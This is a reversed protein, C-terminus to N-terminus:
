GPRKLMLHVLPRGHYTSDWEICFFDLAFYRTFLERLRFPDPIVEKGLFDQTEPFSQSLYLWGDKKVMTNLNHIVEELEPYVYWMIEKCVVLDFDQM